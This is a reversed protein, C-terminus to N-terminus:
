RLGSVDERSFEALKDLDIEVGLGPKDPIRLM